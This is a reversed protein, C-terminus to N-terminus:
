SINELLFYDVECRVAQEPFEEELFIKGTRLGSLVHRFLQPDRDIFILGNEDLTNPIKSELLSALLGSKQLTTRLTQFIEGGVNIKICSPLSAEVKVEEELTTLGEHEVVDEAPIM